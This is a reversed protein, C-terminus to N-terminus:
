NSPWSPESVASRKSSNRVSVYASAEVAADSHSESLQKHTEIKQLLGLAKNDPPLPDMSLIHTRVSDYSSNLGMLLQILKSHTERDLLRKMMQCTCVKLTGCSCEPIPDVTDISEWNRKLQSYYDLLSFNDQSNNGLDKKLQYLELANVQGYREMLETWLEKSTKSYMVNDRISKSMSNLLWRLVM